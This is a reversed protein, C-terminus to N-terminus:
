SEGQMPEQDNRSAEQEQDSSTEHGLGDPEKLVVYSKHEPAHELM